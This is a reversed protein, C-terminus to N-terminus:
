HILSVSESKHRVTTLANIMVLTKPVNVFNRFTVTLQKMDTQGDAHFLKVAMPHFEM